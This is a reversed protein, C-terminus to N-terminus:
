IANVCFRKASFIVCNYMDFNNFSYITTKVAEVGSELLFKKLKENSDKVTTKSERLRM